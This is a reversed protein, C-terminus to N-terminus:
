PITSTGLGAGVVADPLSHFPTPGRETGRVRGVVVYQSSLTQLALSRHARPQRPRRKWETRASVALFADLEEAATRTPIAAPEVPEQKVRPEEFDGLDPEDVTLTAAPRRSRRSAVIVDMRHYIAQGPDGVAVAVRTRAEMRFVAGQAANVDQSGDYLLPDRLSLPVRSM